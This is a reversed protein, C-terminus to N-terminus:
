QTDGEIVLYGRGPEEMESFSERLSPIFQELLESSNKNIAWVHFYGSGYKVLFVEYEDLNAKLFNHMETSAIQVNTGESNADFFTGFDKVDSLECYNREEPCTTSWMGATHVLLLDAELQEISKSTLGGRSFAPSNLGVLDYHQGPTWYPLRGAESSATVTNSTMASAISSPFFDIYDPLLIKSYSASFLQTQSLLFLLSFVLVTADISINKPFRSHPLKTKKIEFFLYLALFAGVATAPSYFRFDVNQSPVAFILIGIHVVFPILSVMPRGLKVGRILALSLMFLVLLVLPLIAHLWQLVGGVGPIFSGGGNSKVLLPLPLVEGFYNARWIFYLAGVLLSGLSALMFKTAETSGKVFLLALLTALVGIIVGDPRFLGLTVGLIPVLWMKEPGLYLLSYFLFLCLAGYLPASFGGYGPLALLTFPLFTSFLLPWFPSIENDRFIKTILSSIFFIGLCNLFLASLAPPIGTLSLFTIFIFWLFDTAGETPEGGDFFSITGTSSLVQVYKFLIFADEHPHGYLIASYGLAFFISPSVFLPLSWWFRRALVTSM